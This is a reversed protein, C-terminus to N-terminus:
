TEEEINLAINLADLIAVCEATFISSNEPLNRQIVLNLSPCVCASGVMCTDRIKSGDTYIDIANNLERVECLKSNPDVTSKLTNGLNRDFKITTTLEKYNYNYINYNNAKYLSQSDNLIECINQEFLRLIRKSNLSLM